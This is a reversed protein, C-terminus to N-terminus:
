SASFIQYLTFIIWGILGILWIWGFGSDKFQSMLGSLPLIFWLMMMFFLNYIKHGWISLDPRERYSFNSERTFPVGSSFLSALEKELKQLYCYQREILHWVQWYRFSMILIFMLPLRGVLIASQDM